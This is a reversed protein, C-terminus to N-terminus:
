LTIWETYVHVISLYPGYSLSSYTLITTSEISGWLFNPDFPSRFSADGNITWIMNYTVFQLKYLKYSDYPRYSKTLIKKSYYRPGFQIFWKHNDLYLKHDFRDSEKYVMSIHILNMDSFKIAFVWCNLFQKSNPIIPYTKQLEEIQTSVLLDSKQKM